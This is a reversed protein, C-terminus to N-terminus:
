GRIFINITFNYQNINPEKSCYHEMSNLYIAQLLTIVSATILIRSYSVTRILARRSLFSLFKGANKPVRCSMVTNVYARWKHRDQALYILNMDEREIEKVNM